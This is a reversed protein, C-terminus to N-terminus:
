ANGPKEFFGIVSAKGRQFLGAGDPSEPAGLQDQCAKVLAKIQRKALPILIGQALSALTGNVISESKWQVSCGTPLPALSFSLTSDVRGLAHRGSTKFHASKWPEAEVLLVAVDVRGRVQPIGVELGVIFSGPKVDKLEKFYPLIPGFREPDTLFAFTQDPSTAVDFAGDLEVKM